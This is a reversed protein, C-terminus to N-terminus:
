RRVERVKTHSEFAALGDSLVVLAVVLVTSARLTLVGM